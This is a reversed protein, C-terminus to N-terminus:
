SRKLYKEYLKWYSQIMKSNGFESLIRERGANALDTRLQENGLLQTIASKLAKVSHPPILIGTVNETVVESTGGVDTAIVVKGAAMAELLSLSLGENSSPQVYIDLGALLHPIDSRFGTWIVSNSINLEAALRELDPQQEGHGIIVLQIDHKESLAEAFAKLLIDLNKAPAIRGTFGIAISGSNIGLEDRIRQRFEPFYYDEPNIANRVVTVNSAKVLPLRVIAKKMENSVAILHNPLYLSFRDLSYYMWGRPRDDPRYLIHKTAMHVNHSRKGIAMATMMITKPTHSHVLEIGNEHIYTRLYASRKAIGKPARSFDLIHVGMDIFEDMLTYPETVGGVHWDIETFGDHQVLSQVIRSISSDSFDNMLHLAIPRHM